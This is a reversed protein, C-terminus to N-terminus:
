FCFQGITEQVDSNGEIQVLGKIEQFEFLVMVKLSNCSINVYLFFNM